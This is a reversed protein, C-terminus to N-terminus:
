PVRRGPTDLRPAPRRTKPRSAQHIIRTARHRVRVDADHMSMDAVRRLVAQLQLREIVWLASSRHAHSPDALMDLLAEGAERVELRLLARIANARVRNCSSELKPKLLAARDVVNLHDMSEIANAQVRNDADHMATRLLRTSTPGPMDTLASMVAARVIRESDGALAYVRDEVSKLMGLAKALRIARCRELPDAASLKTRLRPLIDNSLHRVEDLLHARKEFPLSELKSLFADLPDVPGEASKSHAPLGDAAHRRQCELLALDRLESDPGSALARLLNTAAEGDDAALRWFLERRVSPRPDSFYPRLRTWRKAPDGGVNSFFRVTNVAASEEMEGLQGLWRDMWPGEAVKQLGALIEVDALLWSERLLAHFFTADTCSMITSVAAARLEPVALARLVAGALKPDTAGGFLECVKAGLKSHPERIKELLDLEVADGMWLAAEVPTASAGPDFRHVVTQLAEVIARNREAVQQTTAVTPKERALAEGSLELLGKAAIERGGKKGGRVADALLYALKADKSDVVLRLANESTEADRSAAALEIVHHLATLHRTMETRAPASLTPYAAVLEMLAPEHKRRCLVTVAASQAEYPLHPLAALIAADAAHDRHDALIRLAPPLPRAGAM